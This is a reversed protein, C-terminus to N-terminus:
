RNLITDLEMGVRNVIYDDELYGWRSYKIGDVNNIHDPVFTMIIKNDKIHYCDGMVKIFNDEHKYIQVLWQTEGIWIYYWLGERLNKIRGIVLNNIRRM